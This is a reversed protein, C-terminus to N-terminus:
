STKRKLRKMLVNKAKKKEGARVKFVWSLEDLFNRIELPRNQLEIKNVELKSIDIVDNIIMM